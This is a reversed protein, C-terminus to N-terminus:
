SAYNKDYKRVKKKSLIYVWFTIIVESFFRVILFYVGFQIVQMEQLVNRIMLPVIIIGLAILYSYINPKPEDPDVVNKPFVDRMFQITMHWGIVTFAFSVTMLIILFVFLMREIFGLEMRVSDATASWVYLYQSVTETGHIGIPLFFSLLLIFFAALIFAWRYKFKFNAPLVRNFIQLNLFGTYIFSASALAILSPVNIAHNAIIHIADWSLLPSAFVKYIVFIVGPINILLFIELMFNVSVTSRTAGYASVILLITLILYTNTDPNLFRTIIGVYSTTALAAAIGTLLSKYILFIRVFWAPYFLRFIEPLGKGPFKNMSNTFTYLLFGGIFPSILISMVAGDFREEVLYYPVLLMLNTLCVVFYHYFVYRNM